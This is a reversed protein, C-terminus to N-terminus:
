QITVKNTSSHLEAAVQWFWISFTVKSYGYHLQYTIIGYDIYNLTVTSNGSGNETGGCGRRGGGSCCGTQRPWGISVGMPAPWPRTGSWLLCRTRWSEGRSRRSTVRISLLISWVKLFLHKSPIIVGRSQYSTARISLLISWVKFFFHNM